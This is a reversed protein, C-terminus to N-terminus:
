LVDEWLFDYGDDDVQALETGDLDGQWIRASGVKYGVGFGITLCLVVAVTAAVSWVDFLGFLGTRRPAAVAQAGAEASAAFREAAVAAADGLVRAQLSKPSPLGRHRRM